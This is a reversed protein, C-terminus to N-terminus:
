VALFVVKCKVKGAAGAGGTAQSVKIYAAKGSPVTAIVDGGTADVITQTGKVIDTTEDPTSSTTISSLANDDEDYLTIIMQDESAGAPKETVKGFFTFVDYGGTNAEATLVVHETADAHDMEEFESTYFPNTISSLTVANLDVRVTLQGSTKAVLATGIYFDETAGVATIAVNASYDWYVKDGVSFTTASASAVDFIGSIFVAGYENAALTEKVVAARGDSLEIVEGATAASGPVYDLTDSFEKYITAENAM